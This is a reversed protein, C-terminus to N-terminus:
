CLSSSTHSLGNFGMNPHLSLWNFPHCSCKFLMWYGLYSIDFCGFFPSLIHVVDHVIVGFIYRHFIWVGLHLCRCPCPRGQCQRLHDLMKLPLWDLRPVLPWLTTLNSLFLILLISHDCHALHHFYPSWFNSSALCKTLNTVSLSDPRALPVESLGSSAITHLCRLFTQKM